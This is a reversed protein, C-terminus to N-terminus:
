TVALMVPTSIIWTESWSYAFGQRELFLAEHYFRARAVFLPHDLATALVEVQALVTPLADTPARVQGPALGAALAAAEAVGNRQGTRLRAGTETRDIDYRPADPRYSVLHTLHLRGEPDDALGLSLLPDDCGPVTATIAAVQSGPQDDVQVALQGQAVTLTIPDIGHAALLANPLTM